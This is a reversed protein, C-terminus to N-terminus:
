PVLQTSEVLYVYGAGKAGLTRFALGHAGYRILSGPNTGAVNALTLTGGASSTITWTTPVATPSITFTRGQADTVSTQTSTNPETVGSFPAGLERTLGYM